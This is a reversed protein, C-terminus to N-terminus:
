VTKEVRLGYIGYPHLLYSECWLDSDPTRHYQWTKDDKNVAGMWGLDSNDYDGRVGGREGYPNHHPGILNRLTTDLSLTLTNEGERLAESIDLRYPPALLAGLSAGNLCASSVTGSVGELVLAVGETDGNWEFTFKQSVGGAYFPYGAATLEGSVAETEHSLTIGRHSYRLSGNREPEPIMNVAFDGILYMSELSTGGRAIFLSQGGGHRRNPPSFHRKVTIVNIGEALDPLRVTEFDRAVYWGYPTNDVREGNLEIDSLLADELALSAGSIPCETRFTYELSVEGVYGEDELMHQIALIPYEGDIRRDGMSFSAYELLLANEKDRKVEGLPSIELSIKSKGGNETVHGRGERMFLLANGGEPLVLDLTTDGGCQVTSLPSSDGTMASWEDILYEGPLTLTLHKEESCDTNVLYFYEGDASRRRLRMVSDGGERVFLSYGDPRVLATLEGIDSVTVASSLCTCLRKEDRLGDVMTPADGLVIVRGGQKSFADLLALTSSRIVSLDPLVVTTYSMEGVTFCGDSVVGLTAVTGEDGLDFEAGSLTLSTMLTSFVADRGTLLERSPQTGTVLSDTRSTYETYASELPHIVLTDKVAKGLSVFRSLRATYDNMLGYSHWYPQYYNLHPPYLRKGRGKLSYFIGHISRHNVGHAALLDLMHKQERIGFAESTVGFMEALIHERGAQRAASACQIPTTMMVERYRFEGPSYPKIRGRTWNQQACLVDIGPLTLYKYFPMTAAARSIQSEMTEEFLLHGSMFIGHLSCWNSIKKFFTEELMDTLLRRYDYRVKEYGERDIFLADINDSLRYGYRDLFKEEIDRPYPLHAAPYSPEDIWISEVTKGFEPAFESWMDEYCVKIYFDVASESFMDLFNGAREERYEIGDREMIIRGSSSEGAKYPVICGLGHESPLDVISDPMYGAQLYLKLGLESSTKVIVRMRSMFDEGPYDSELGVYTRAIFSSFGKDKIDKLQRVIEDDTLKGNLMWFDTGRYIRDPSRFSEFDKTSM